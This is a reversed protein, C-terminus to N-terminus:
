SLVWKFGAPYNIVMVVGFAKASLVRRSSDSSLCCAPIVVVQGGSNLVIASKDFVKHM